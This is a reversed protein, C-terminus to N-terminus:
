DTADPEARGALHWDGLVRTRVQRGGPLKAVAYRGEVRVLEARVAAAATTSGSRTPVRMRGVKEAVAVVEETVADTVLLGYESREGPVWIMERPAVFRRAARGGATAAVPEDSPRDALPLSNQESGLRWGRDDRGAKPDPAWALKLRRLDALARSVAEVPHPGADPFRADLWEAVDSPWVAALDGREARMDRVARYAARVAERAKRLEPPLDAAPDLTKKPLKATVSMVRGDIERAYHLTERGARRLAERLERLCRDATQEPTESTTLM